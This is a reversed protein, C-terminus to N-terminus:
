NQPAGADVWSAIAAQQLAPLLGGQPMPNAPNMVRAKINAAALKAADYSTINLGGSAKTANHCGVCSNAFIGGAAILEAYTVKQPIPTTGPTPTPTPATATTSVLASYELSVPTGANVPFVALASSIGPALNTDTIDSVISNLTSYTTVDNLFEDNMYINLTRANFSGSALSKLRLTPNRFEYGRTVGGVVAIRVDIGAILPLKVSSETELDWEMRAYNTATATAPIPKNTTKVVSGIPGGGNEAVCSVYQSQAPGWSARISEIIDTNHLGTYPPKHADNLAQNSIKTAGISM